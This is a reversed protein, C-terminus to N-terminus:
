SPKAPAAHDPPTEERRVADGPKLSRLARFPGTVITEGGKLGDLVELALEGLLGSKVPQFRVKGDEVVYVGEEDRPAGRPPTEGPKREIERMVLAQIPVTLAQPRFGTLLDAQVSLGPKIGEPPNKVQVKVKFKIAEAQPNQALIPSSGVETVVGEFTRNPYADIRVLAEQGVAVAPVSTEDVELETEVSSMDSITLLVTGPSNQVGIVAVEGEEVRRATVVGDIPSRVTTKALTDQAGELSARAQEVRRESALLAAEAAAATSRARQLDSASLIGTKFNADAREADDHSQDRNIRASDLDRLLAQMSFETSRALARPNVADIQLLFQGKRVVDGERVALQTIQGAITASIDVKKQAQVKGNATVKAQLDERGVTALQVATPKARGRVLVAGIGSGVAVIAIGAILWKRRRTM